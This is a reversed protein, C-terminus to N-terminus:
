VDMCVLSHKNLHLFNRLAAGREPAAGDKADEATVGLDSPAIVHNTRARQRFTPASSAADDEELVASEEEEEPRLQVPPNVSSQEGNSEGPAQVVEQPKIFQSLLVALVNQVDGQTSLGEVEAQEQAPNEKQLEVTQVPAPTTTMATISQNLADLQLQMDPNAQINLLQSIQAVSLDTQSQLLNLLIALESQNLQQTIDVLVASDATSIEAKM